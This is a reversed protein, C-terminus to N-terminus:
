CPTKLAREVSWGANIRRLLTNYKIGTIESWEAVTKREGNLELFRNGRKNRCQTKATAWRCNEPAYDGNVDIRDITCVGHKATEDYGTSIAWERFKSFDKWEECISIGRGGYNKYADSSQNECRRTMNVWVQYLRSNSGNHTTSRSINKEKVLCGCSNSSGRLLAGSPVIKTNGCDCKCLWRPREGKKNVREIAVLKGFRQGALEAASNRRATEKRLCGCSQTVSKVLNGSDVGTENGCDCLCIWRAQGRKNNEARKQVVLRGVRM